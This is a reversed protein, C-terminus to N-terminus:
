RRTAATKGATLQKRLTVDPAKKNRGPLLFIRELEQGSETFDM